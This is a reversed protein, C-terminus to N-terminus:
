GRGWVVQKGDNLSAVFDLGLDGSFHEKQDESTYFRSKPRELDVLRNVVTLKIISTEAGEEIEMVDMRGTLTLYPDSVIAGSSDLAGLWMKAFRESYEEDLATSILSSPIGSLQFTTVASKVLITEKVETIKGLDGVGTYTDSNFVIDGIGSWVNIDGSDFQMKFFVAPTLDVATVETVMGATLDRAM